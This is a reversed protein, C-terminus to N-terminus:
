GAIAKAEDETLGLKALKALASAKAETQATEAAEREIREKEATARDIERQAIEEETLPIITQEGTSCDVITKTLTESM